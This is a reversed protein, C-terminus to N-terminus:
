WATFGDDSDQAYEDQASPLAHRQSSQPLAQGPNQKALRFRAVASKLLEAQGNLEEAAAATEEASATNQHTVLEIQTLGNNVQRIGEAQHSSADAIDKTISAAKGVAEAIAQLQEATRDSVKSGDQVQKISGEILGATERAAKASRGALNRVEEAVVAFGKGHSGARAAEVAANLALLNTQFAIEDVVKIISGINQSTKNIEEMAKLMQRMEENGTSAGESAKSTHERAIAAQEANTETRSGIDTLSSTIQQLSSAQETAGQSLAQTASSVESSSAAINEAARRIERVLDQLGVLMDHLALGLDDNESALHVEVNLDGEAIARALAAKERQTTLLRAASRALDGIEDGRLLLREDPDQRTDGCAVAELRAATERVPRSLSRAFYASVAVGLIAVVASLLLVWFRMSSLENNVSELTDTFDSLDATSVVIWDWPKYLSSASIREVPANGKAKQQLYRLVAPDQGRPTAAAILEAFIDRGAADTEGTAQKGILTEDRQVVIKGKDRGEAGLITVSGSKGVKRQTIAEILAKIGTQQIGVYLAGIVQGRADKIPEYVTLYWDNVVYARGRFTEGRLLAQTVPSDSPIYTGVARNGDLKKVSTAVRLMDGKQNMRQFITCTSNVLSTLEDVVPSPVDFSTTHGLWVDGLMFRPIEINGGEKSVQNIANWNETELALHPSGHENLLRRATNLQGELERLLTQNQTELLNLIDNNAGAVEKAIQEGLLAEMSDGLQAQRMLMVSLVCIATALVLGAGLLIVKSGIKM